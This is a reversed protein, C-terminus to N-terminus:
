GRPLFTFRVNRGWCKDTVRILQRGQFLVEGSALIVSTGWAAVPTPSASASGLFSPFFLLASAWHAESYIKDSALRAECKTKTAAATTATVWRSLSSSLASYVLLFHFKFKRLMKSFDSLCSSKCKFVCPWHCLCLSCISWQLHAPTCWFCSM